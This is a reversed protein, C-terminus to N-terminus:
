KNLCCKKFKKGSGCTCPANRPTRVDNRITPTSAIEPQPRYAPAPTLRNRSKAQEVVEDFMVGESITQMVNRYRGCHEALKNEAFEADLVMRRLDEVPSFWDADERSFAEDFVHAHEKSALFALNEAYPAILSPEDLLARRLGAVLADTAVQYDVLGIHCARSYFDVMERRDPLSRDADWIWQEIFDVQKLPTLAVAAVILGFQDGLLQERNSQPMRLITELLDTPLPMRHAVTLALGLYAGNGSWSDSDAQYRAVEDRILAITASYASAFACHISQVAERPFYMDSSKRLQEMFESVAKETLEAGGFARENVRYSANEPELDDSFYDYWWSSLEAAPDVWGREDGYFPKCRGSSGWSDVDVYSTDIQGREFSSRVVADVAEVEYASLDILECVIQASRDDFSQDARKKLSDVLANIATIRDLTGLAVALAMGRYLSASNLDLFSQHEVVREIWGIVETANQNQFFRAILHPIAETVLDGLLKDVADGPLTLLSEILHRDDNTAIPVLLALAFFVSNSRDGLGDEVLGIAEGILRVLSDHIADGRSQLERLVGVPLVSSPFRRLNRLLEDTAMESATIVPTSATHIDLM